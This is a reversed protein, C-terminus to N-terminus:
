EMQRIEKLLLPFLAIALGLLGFIVFVQAPGIHDTMIGGVAEGIPITVISGFSDLSNVRGLKDSPIKEHLLTFWITNFFALGFGVLMSALSALVPADSHPFPLGFLILGIAPLLMASYALLGRRKLRKAQGVLLLAIMSGIAGTTSILGLLWAGQGYVDNVLRPMAVALTAMLGINNGAFGLISVWLWPLGRVYDFGDKIDAIVGRFGGPRAPAEVTEALAVPSGEALEALALATNENVGIPAALSIDETNGNAAVVMSEAVEARMSIHREPIRVSLLFAVSVFFSLADAAFAGMPTVLAILLAGLLPGLLQALNGSFSNLANASTLDDKEVLDPTIAMIAPHFFGDVVGFVLAEVILQWLLLHGAIGLISILLVVVGRGGDSWLIILRRPLRDAAVGGLLVFVINPVTSALLVMGMATGSHTMLLVQWALAVQFVGDGMSSIAQGLWLFTFPRTKFARAFRLRETLNTIM